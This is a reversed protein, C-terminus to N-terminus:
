INYVYIQIYVFSNIVRVSRIRTYTIYAASSDTLEKYSEYVCIIIFYM